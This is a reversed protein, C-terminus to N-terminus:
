EEKIRRRLRQWLSPKASGSDVVTATYTISFESKSDFETPLDLAIRDQLIDYLDGPQRETSHLFMRTDPGFKPMKFTAEATVVQPKDDFWEGVYTEGALLPELTNGQLVAVKEAVSLDTRRIIRDRERWQDIRQRLTMM